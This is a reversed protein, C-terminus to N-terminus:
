WIHCVLCNEKPVRLESVAGLGVDQGGCCAGPKGDQAGGGSRRGPLGCWVGLAGASGRGRVGSEWGQAGVGPASSAPARPSPPASPAPRVPRPQWTLPAPESRGGRAEGYFTFGPSRGRANEPWGGPDSTETELSSPRSCVSAPTPLTSSAKGVSLTIGEGRPHSGGVTPLPLARLESRRLVRLPGAAAM